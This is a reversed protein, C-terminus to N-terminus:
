AEADPKRKNYYYYHRPNWFLSASKLGELLVQGTAKALRRMRGPQSEVAVEPNPYPPLVTRGNIMDSLHDVAKTTLNQLENADGKALQRVAKMDEASLDFWEQYFNLRDKTEAASAEGASQKCFAELMAGYAGTLDDRETFPFRVHPTQDYPGEHDHRILDGMFDTDHRLHEPVRGLPTSAGPWQREPNNFDIQGGNILWEYNGSM